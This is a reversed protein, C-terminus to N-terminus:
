TACIANNSIYYQLSSFIPAFMCLSHVKNIKDITRCKLGTAYKKSKECYKENLVNESKSLKYKM